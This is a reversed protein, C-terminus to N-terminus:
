SEPDGRGEREVDAVLNATATRLMRYNVETWLSAAAGVLTTNLAIGMGHILDSVLKQTGAASMAATPDVGSLAAIFGVVTGILGLAVMWNAADKIHAIKEPLKATQRRIRLGRHSVIRGSRLTKWLNLARSVKVARFSTSALTAVFLALIAYTIYSGDGLFLPAVLGSAGLLGVGVLVLVNFVVLRYILLNRLM